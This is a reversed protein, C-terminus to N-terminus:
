IEYLNNDGNGLLDFGQKGKKALNAFNRILNIHPNNDICAISKLDITTKKNIENNENYYDLSHGSHVWTYNSLINRDHLKDKGIAHISLNSIFPLNLEKIYNEISNYRDQLKPVEDRSVFISIDIIEGFNVRSLIAKLIIYLNEIARNSKLIYPDAIIIGTIPSNVENYFNQWGKFNYNVDDVLCCNQHTLTHIINQWNNDDCSIHFKQGLFKGNSLILALPLQIPENSSINFEKIESGGTLSSKRLKTYNPNVESKELFENLSDIFLTCRSQIVKYLLTWKEIHEDDATSFTLRQGFFHDLFSLECYTPLRNM